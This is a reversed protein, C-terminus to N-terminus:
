TEKEWLFYKKEYGGVLSRPKYKGLTRQHLLLIKQKGKRGGREKGGLSFPIRLRMGVGKAMKVDKAVHQRQPLEM